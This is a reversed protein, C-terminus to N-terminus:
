GRRRSLFIRHIFAGLASTGAFLGAVSSVGTEPLTPPTVPPAPPVVPPQGPTINIPEVCNDSTVTKTDGNVDFTLTVRAVYNGDRPYTYEVPNQDTVLPESDDGFEYTYSELEAGNEATFRVLFRYTRGDLRTMELEDCSFEPQEKEEECPVNIKVQATNYYPNMGKPKVIGVNRVDYQGCKEYATVPDLEVALLVYGVAGPMYHGVNIGGKTINDNEVAVGNPNAGNMLKTSGEVYKNYDPLNDGVLVDELKTNGENKFKIMYELDDGPKATTSTKWDDSGQGAHRVYKNVSVVDAVSRVQITVTEHYANCGILPGGRVEDLNVGAKVVEDSIKVTAYCREPPFEMGTKCSADGEAAGKNYRFKATGQVYQLKAREMSLKVTTTDTITNSNDASSIGTITQTTGAQDPVIFRVRNNVAKTGEPLERNHQWLQVQVVEDVNANTTDKYETEGATVNLAKTHGEMVVQNQATVLGAVFPVTLGSVLLAALLKKQLGKIINRLKM